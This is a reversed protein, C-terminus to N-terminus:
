FRGVVGFYCFFYQDTQVKRFKDSGVIQWLGFYLTTYGITGILSSTFDDLLTDNQGNDIYVGNDNAKTFKRMKANQRYGEPLTSNKDGSIKWEISKSKENGREAVQQQMMPNMENLESAPHLQHEDQFYRPPYNSTRSSPELILLQM